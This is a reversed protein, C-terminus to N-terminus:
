CNNKTLYPEILLNICKLLFTTSLLEIGGFYKIHIESITENNYVFMTM